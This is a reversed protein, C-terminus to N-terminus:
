GPRTGLVSASGQMPEVTLRCLYQRMAGVLCATAHVVDIMNGDMKDTLGTSLEM